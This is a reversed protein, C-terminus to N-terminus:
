LKFWSPGYGTPRIGLRGSAFTFNIMMKLSLTIFSELRLFFASFQKLQNGLINVIIPNYARFIHLINERTGEFIGALSFQSLSVTSPFM